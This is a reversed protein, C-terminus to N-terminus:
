SAMRRLHLHIRGEADVQEEALAFGQAALQRMAAQYAYLQTLKQVFEQRKLGHVGWWDAVIEYVNESRRFGIDYSTLSPRFKFEVEVQQNGFGRVKGPQDVVKYGMQQLAAIIYSKEKLRTKIRTFHSM